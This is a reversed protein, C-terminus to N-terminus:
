LKWFSLNHRKEAEAEAQDDLAAFFDFGTLEELEDVSMACNQMNENRPSNQMIFAISQWRSGDHALVAKFFADPVVVHSDGITGYRNEGIVPGTVIYISGHRRAWTRCKKELTNWIGNNLDEDQPCCNTFHFTEWMAEDSWRFDAAPALHGRTWGSGRYDYDDPQPLLVREDPSFFKGDRLADGYTEDKTLEYAVWEPTQTLVDYSSVYGEYEVIYDEGSLAPLEIRSTDIDQTFVCGACMIGAALISLFSNRM